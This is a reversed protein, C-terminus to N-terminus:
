NKKCCVQGENASADSFVGYVQSQGDPCSEFWDRTGDDLECKQGQQVNDLGRGFISIRGTFIMVIVVLVILAIAAVIITNISISQAKKM